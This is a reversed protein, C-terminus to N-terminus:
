AESASFAQGTTAGFISIAASSVVSGSEYMAGAVIKFSPQAAAATAGMDNVWLDGTSLNMVRYFKRSANSAALTQATGGSTITGSKSTYSAAAATFSVPVATARLQTDTLPGSVPLATARIQTDTLPGSVPVATARLQTDTLPGTVPLPDTASVDVASGDVGFTAKIRQHMIGSVDDSAVTKTAGTSDLVTINDAM